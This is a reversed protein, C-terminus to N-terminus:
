RPPILFALAMMETHDDSRKAVAADYAQTLVETGDPRTLLERYADCISAIHERAGESFDFAFIDIFLPFEMIADVLEESSLSDLVEQPIRCAAVMQDHNALAYWEDSGPRVPYVDDMNVAGAVQSLVLGLLLTLFLSKFLKKM